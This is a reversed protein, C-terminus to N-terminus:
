WKKRPGLGLREPQDLELGILYAGDQERRSCHRVVGPCSGSKGRILLRDGKLYPGPASVGLGTASQDEVVATCVVGDPAELRVLSPGAVRPARRTDESMPGVKERPGHRKHGQSCVPVRIDMEVPGAIM